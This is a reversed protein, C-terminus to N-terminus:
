KQGLCWFSLYGFLLICYGIFKLRFLNNITTPVATRRKTTTKITQHFLSIIILLLKPIMILFSDSLLPIVPNSQASASVLGKATIIGDSTSALGREPILWASITKSIGTSGDPIVLNIATKWHSFGLSIPEILDARFSKIGNAAPNFIM